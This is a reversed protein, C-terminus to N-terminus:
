QYEQKGTRLRMLAIWILEVVVWWLILSLFISLKLYGGPNSGHSGGSFFLAGAKLGPSFIAIALWKLGADRASIMAVGFLLVMAIIISLLRRKTASITMGQKGRM